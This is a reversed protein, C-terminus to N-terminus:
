LTYQIYKNSMKLYYYYYYKCRNTNNKNTYLEKQKKNM